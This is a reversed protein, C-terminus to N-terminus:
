FHLITETYSVTNRPGTARVIVRYYPGIVAGSIRGGAELSGRDSATSTGVVIPRSCFNASSTAGVSDCLRTIVWQVQNDNVPTGTFPRISCTTYSAADAGQCNGDWDILPLKNAASTHSGTPDLKDLSSAYYGNTRKDVPWNVPDNSDYDLLNGDINSEIWAMAQEAAIGSAETADQKFGLNGVILTGTDVSRVMAVSALMIVMLSVLAILMSMGHQRHAFRPEMRNM